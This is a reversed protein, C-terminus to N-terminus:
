EYRLAVLPDVRTARRAPICCAAFATVSLFLPVGILTLPDLAEVGFLLSKMLQSLGAAGLTGFLMGAVILRAGQSLVLRLIDNMQAGLAMRVGLEQTRQTVSYAMLGYIGIAALLLAFIAFIGLLLMTFRSRALSDALLQDMTAISAMPLEADLQHLEDRIAPVLAAPDSSTRVLITMQSMVLEPHPWYVTPDPASDLGMQHVDGVVGIIGSPVLDSETLSKMFIAAKQGLPEAGHLYQDVFAQNVITVHKEEQLEQAAFFRGARLPIGMTRLYDSGVVRVNAVPLEGQPGVPQGLVHVDTAAGLGTLPPFSEMSASSVGPIAAIKALFRRFFEVRAPDTGYRADPLSVKFTLLGNVQFGPEVTILRIFSRILLGSGVLLVLALSLQAVVFVNRAAVSRVAPSTGRKAERLTQPSRLSAMFYAPLFGFLLGATVTCLASFSLVRLNLPVSRLDLLNTPSAALLANTGWVALGIGAAGGLIALLVSEILLQRTIRWPSAGIATRIAIERERSAARALLLGSLNACAILLVSLVAASLLLLAPKLAGSVQQAMPVVNVTWHRDEPYEIELQSAISQMQAQAAKLTVDSKLRAVVSIFRGMDKHVAYAPPFVFPTWIQPKGGTLSGDKVLWAFDEPAVGVVTQPKGNLLISKGIIKPDGSFRRQWLGFGLIVVDDHGKAGNEPTFGAGLIPTVGIVSFFNASVAQVIVEEPDGGGTLNNRVDCLYAMESFVSNRAQWDVFNSPSVTNYPNRAQSNREWVMVLREPDRYPLARLLVADVVSFIATNAGIGLALMLIAVAAFGPNKRLQRLAFRCDALVSKLVNGLQRDRVQEKVQEVGGLELRAAREAEQAPMGDRLKEDTLLDLHSRVESDLDADVRQRSFLNRLFSRAKSFFPM